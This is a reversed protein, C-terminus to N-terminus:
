EWTGHKANTSVVELSEQPLVQTRQEENDRLKHTIYVSEPFMRDAYQQCYHKLFELKAFYVLRVKRTTRNAKYYNVSHTAKNKRNGVRAHPRGKRLCKGGVGQEAETQIDQAGEFM